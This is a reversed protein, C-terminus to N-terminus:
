SGGGFLARGVYDDDDPDWGKVVVVARIAARKAADMTKYLQKSRGPKYSNDNCSYFARYGDYEAVVTLVWVGTDMHEATVMRSNEKTGKEWCIAPMGHCREPLRLYKDYPHTM